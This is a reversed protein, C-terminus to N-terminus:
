GTMEQGQPRKRKTAVAIDSENAHKREQRTGTCDQPLKANQLAICNIRESERLITM